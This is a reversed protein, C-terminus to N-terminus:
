VLLRKIKLAAKINRNNTNYSHSKLLIATTPPKKM